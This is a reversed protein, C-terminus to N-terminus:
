IVSIDMIGDQIVKETLDTKDEMVIFDSVTYDSDHLITQAVYELDGNKENLLVPQSVLQFAISRTQIAPHSKM